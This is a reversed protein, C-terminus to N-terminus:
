STLHIDPFYFANILFLGWFFYGSPFPTSFLVSGSVIIARKFALAGFPCPMFICLISLLKICLMRLLFSGWSYSSSSQWLMGLFFTMFVAHLRSFFLGVFHYFMAAGSLLLAQYFFASCFSMLILVSSFADNCCTFDCQWLSHCLCSADKYYHLAPLKKKKRHIM